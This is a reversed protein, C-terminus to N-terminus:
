TIRHRYMGNSEGNDGKRVENINNTTVSHDVVSYPHSVQRHHFSGLTILLRDQVLRYQQLQIRLLPIRTVM